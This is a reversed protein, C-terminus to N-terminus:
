PSHRRGCRDMALKALCVQAYMYRINLSSVGHGLRSRVRIVRRGTQIDSDWRVVRVM